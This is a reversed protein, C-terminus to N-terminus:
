YQALYKFGICHLLRLFLFVCLSVSLSLTSHICLIRNCWLFDYFAHRYFRFANTCDLSIKTCTCASRHINCRVSLIDRKLISDFWKAIEYLFLLNFMCPSLSLSLSLRNECMWFHITFLILVFRCRKPQRLDM